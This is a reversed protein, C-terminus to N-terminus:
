KQNIWMKTYSEIKRKCEQRKEKPVFSWIIPIGLRQIIDHHKKCLDIQRNDEPYERMCKPLIHHSEQTLLYCDKKQCNITTLIKM